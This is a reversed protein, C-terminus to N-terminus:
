KGEVGRGCRDGGGDQDVTLNASVDCVEAGGRVTLQKCGGDRLNEVISADCGGFKVRDCHTNAGARESTQPHAQHCRAHHGFRKANRNM